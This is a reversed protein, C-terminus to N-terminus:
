STSFAMSTVAATVFALKTSSEARSVVATWLWDAGTTVSVLVIFCISVRDM